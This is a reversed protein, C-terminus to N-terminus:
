LLKVKNNWQNSLGENNGSYLNSILLKENMLADPDDAFTFKREKGRKYEDVELQEKASDDTYTKFLSDIDKKASEFNKEQTTLINLIELRWKDGNKFKNEEVFTFLEKVLSDRDNLIKDFFLLYFRKEQETKISPTLLITSLSDDYELSTNTSVIDNIDLVTLFGNLSQGMINYDGQLESLTDSYDTSLSPYTETTATIKYVVPNGKDNIIGDIEQQVVNVKDLIETLELQNTVMKQIEGVMGASYGNRQREIIDKVKKKYKKVDKNKFVSTKSPILPFTGNDVDELAKDFQTGFKEDVRLSKGYLKVDEEDPTVGIVIYGDKYNRDKNILRLGIEGYYNAVTLLSSVTTDKYVKTKDLLDDMIKKYSTTGSISVTGGTSIEIDQTLIEGITNGGDRTNEDDTNNSFPTDFKIQSIFDADIETTDETFEAREDYMETNAYYNFSLANQLREIPRQLGHGGIFNFSLNVDALMPQVGIGEPNLDLQLPEYRISMQNIAIKTHWFDGVRLICIPPTGFSTNLADNELPEGDPGITPITEGPRLCQQLFTLRSNLGEPTISHFTPHFYKIKERMNEYLMSTDETVAEFYDCESLMRRLLKKTVAQRVQTDDTQTTTVIKREREVIDFEPVIDNDNTIDTQTTEEAQRTGLVEIKSITSRRCRMARVSYIKTDASYAGTFPTSCGALDEGQANESVIAIKGKDGSNVEIVQKNETIQKKVSDIRRKSLKTNYEKSNPASASGELSINVTYGNNAAEVADTIFDNFKKMSNTIDLNFFEETETQGSFKKAKTIYTSKQKIYKNFYTEYKYDSTVEKNTVGEPWDNDFYLNLGGYTGQLDPKEETSDPPTEDIEPRERPIEEYYKEFTEKNNTTTVIEYIDNFSFQGYKRLLEYIDMTKCGSFFSDVIKNVETTDVNKLQKEVLTNLVSPHDVIIKFSINGIRQTNSYTYIPEPRGLFDNTNWRATINEDFSIDYPPFWMIRGGAPGKECEPLDQQLKSTRWALNELSLMYKTINEGNRTGFNTPIGGEKQPAINFNYTNDLISSKFKRINGDRKQLNGMTHYPSDKTFIRCYEKGKEIGNENVYTKVRSGKTIERTGDNFIRSAQNIAHGVHQQQKVGTLGDASNILRQTDDLISGKKFETNTSLTGSWTSLDSNVGSQTEPSIWTFGGQLDPGDGPEVTNLGFKFNQNLEYDNGLTSYGFVPAMIKVGDQDSPLSGAPSDALSPDSDKSGVYFGQVDDDGTFFNAIKNKLNNILGENYHPGYRNYSLSKLLSSKQGGGTNDLFTQMGTKETPLKLRYDDKKTFLGTVKNVAQNVLLKRPTNSFYDGPIWSYPVYVGSIRSVYDLGKAIINNPVSITWDPEILEQRGTLIDGAIFPDKLANLFNLRGLTEQQIEEAVRYEMETKLSTAAIQMLSSDQSVTGDSGQPDNSFLISSPNYYSAVFKFYEDRQTVLKQVDQVSYPDDYGGSPGYQNNIYLRVEEQEGIEEVQASDIVSFNTLELESQGPSTTPNFGDDDFPPLNRVLLKKRFNETSNFSLPSPM